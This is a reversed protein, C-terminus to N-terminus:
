QHEPRDSQGSKFIQVNPASLASHDFREVQTIRQLRRVEEQRRQYSAMDARIKALLPDVQAVLEPSVRGRKQLGQFEVFLDKLADMDNEENRLREVLAGLDENFQDDVLGQLARRKQGIDRKLEALEIRESEAQALEGGGDLEVDMDLDIKGVQSEPEAKKSLMRSFLKM